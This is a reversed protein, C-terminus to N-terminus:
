VNPSIRERVAGIGFWVLWFTFLMLDSIDGPNGTRWLPLGADNAIMGALLAAFVSAKFRNM